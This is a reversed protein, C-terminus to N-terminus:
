DAAVRVKSIRSEKQDPDDDRDQNKIVIDVTKGVLLEPAHNGGEDVYPTGSNDFLERLRRGAAPSYSWDDWIRRGAYSVPQQTVPDITVASPHDNFVFGLHLRAYAQKGKRTTQGPLSMDEFNITGHEEPRLTQEVITARYKGEQYLDTKSVKSLDISTKFGM